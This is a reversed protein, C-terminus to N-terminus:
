QRYAFKEMQEIDEEYKAVWDMVSDGYFDYGSGCSGSFYVMAACWEAEQTQKGAGADKLYVGTALFADRIEWPDAPEGIIESIRDEYRIWTSPIFQAPGMAGGWGISMPCSVRTNKPDRGLKQCIDLFPGVDRSPKMVKERPEGSSAVIGSGTKENKLYCQGVNKGIRSEQTLVALILPTRVGTVGEVYRAIEVAEGFTPAEPVGILSFLRQRIEQAKERSEALLKQYEEEKGKTKYLLGEKEQKTSKSSEKQLLQVKKTKQWDKQKEELSARQEKLNERLSKMEELLRRNEGLLRELDFVDEFFGSIEEHALFIELSSRQDKEYITRLIRALRERNEGIKEETNQISQETDGLQVELDKIIINSRKIQYDLKGIKQRLLYIKNNLTRQKEKNETIEGEYKKIKSKYKDLLSKCEEVTGCEEEARARFGLFLPLILGGLCVVAVIKHKTSLTM